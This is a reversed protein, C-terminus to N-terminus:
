EAHAEKRDDDFEQNIKGQRRELKEKAKKKRDMEKMQKKFTHSNKKAM